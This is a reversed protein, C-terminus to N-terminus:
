LEASQRDLVKGMAKALAVLWSDTGATSKRGGTVAGLEEDQLAQIDQYASQDLDSTAAEIKSVPKSGQDQSKTAPDRGRNLPQDFFRCM